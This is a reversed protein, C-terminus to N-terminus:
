KGDYGDRNIDGIRSLAFGFRANLCNLETCEMDKMKRNTIRLPQTDKTIGECVSKTSFILLCDLNMNVDGSFQSPCLQLQLGARGRTASLPQPFSGASSNEESTRGITRRRQCDAYSMSTSNSKARVCIMM